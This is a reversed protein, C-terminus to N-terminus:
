LQIKGRTYQQLMQKAREPRDFFSEFLIYNLLRAKYLPNRPDTDPLKALEIEIAQRMSKIHKKFDELTIQGSAQIELMKRYSEQEEPLLDDYDKIGKQKLGLQEFLDDLM